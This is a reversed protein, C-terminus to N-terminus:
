ILADQPADVIHRALLPIARPTFAPALPHRQHRWDDGESLFLGQGIIPRVIRITAPTRRYNTHNDVLVRRIGDPNNILLRDRGLFSAAIFDQEYAQPSWASLANTRFAALLRYWPLGPPAMGLRPPVLGGDEPNTPSPSSISTM